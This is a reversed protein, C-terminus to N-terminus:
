LCFHAYQVPSYQNPSSKKKKKKKVERIRRFSFSKLHELSIVCLLLQSFVKSMTKLTPFKLYRCAKTGVISHRAPFLRQKYRAKNQSVSAPFQGPRLPFVLCKAKVSISGCSLASFCISSLTIVWIWTILPLYM